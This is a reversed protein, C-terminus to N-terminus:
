KLSFFIKSPGEDNMSGLESLVGHYCLTTFLRTFFGITAKRTLSMRIQSLPKTGAAICLAVAFNFIHVEIKIKYKGPFFGQLYNTRKM